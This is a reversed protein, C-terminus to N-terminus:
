HQSRCQLCPEPAGPACDVVDCIGLLGPALECKEYAKSCGKAPTGSHGDRPAKAEPCASLLLLLLM